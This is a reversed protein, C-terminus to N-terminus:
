LLPDDAAGVHAEASPEQRPRNTRLQGLSVVSPREGLAKAHTASAPVLASPRMSQAAVRHLSAIPQAASEAFGITREVTVIPWADVAPVYVLQELMSQASVADPGPAPPLAELMVPADPDVISAATQVPPAEAADQDGGPDPACAALGFWVIITLM